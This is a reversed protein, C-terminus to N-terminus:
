KGNSGPVGGDRGQAWDPGGIGSVGTSLSFGSPENSKLTTISSKWGEYWAIDDKGDGDFDGVGAWNPGGIGSVGGWLGFSTTDSHLVDLNGGQQYWAIDDKGDGDFDGVGAWSPSGVGTRWTSPNFGNHNNFVTIASRWDEYWAIDAIHDGNFDGVGAWTPGGIGGIQYVGGFSNGYSMLLTITNAPQEYWVIDDKGDGTFDGVGAWVPGGVNDMFDELSFVGGGHNILVTIRNKWQEYWAIDAFGNGDFDGVGAWNAGGIGTQWPQIEFTTGDSKLISITNKWQEFWAIDAKGDHNFDGRKSPGSPAPASGGASVTAGFDVFETFGMDGAKGTRTDGDGKVNHNYESVTINDNLPNNADVSNVSEVVAVHGPNGPVVAAVGARPSSLREDAPANDYWQGGNKLGSPVTGGLQGIRWQAYDTCNRYEYGARFCEGSPTATGCGGGTFSGNGDEDWYWDYKNASQGPDPNACSDGGQAFECPANAYPYDLDSYTITEAHAASPDIIDGAAYVSTAAGVIAMGAAAARGLGIRLNTAAGSVRERWGITQEQQAPLVPVQETM